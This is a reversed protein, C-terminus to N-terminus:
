TIQLTVPIAAVVAVLGAPQPAPLLACDTDSGNCSAPELGGLVVVKPPVRSAGPSAENALDIKGVGEGAGFAAPSQADDGEDVTRRDDLLDQPVELQPIRGLSRRRGARRSPQL